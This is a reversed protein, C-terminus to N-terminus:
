AYPMSFVRVIAFSILDKCNILERNLHWMEISLTLTANKIVKKPLYIVQTICPKSPQLAASINFGKEILSGQDLEQM